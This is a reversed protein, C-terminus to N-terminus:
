HSGKSLNCWGHSPRVNSINDSGGQSIPILHEIHLGTRWGPKGVQRSNNMDIPMDCLYCNNGYLDLVQQETYPEHSNTKELARRKRDSRRRSEPNNKKWLRDQELIKERYKNRHKKNRVRNIEPNDRRLKNVYENHCSKCKSTLYIHNKDRYYFFKDTKPYVNKCTICTKM